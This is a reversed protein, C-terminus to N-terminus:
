RAGPDLRVTLDLVGAARESTELAGVSEFMKRAAPDAVIMHGEFREIGAARARAALREILATGLGVHQRRDVITVAATARSRDGADRVYRALGAAAGTDTDVAILAEHDRHDVTTLQKAEPDTLQGRERMDPRDFVFQKYRSVASLEGYGEKVLSSDAPEVPHILVTSGDRLRLREGEFSRHRETPALGSFYGEFHATTLRELDRRATEIDTELADLQGHLRKYEHREDDRTM